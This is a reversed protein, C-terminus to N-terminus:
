LRPTLSVASRAIGDELPTLPMWGLETRAKASSYQQDRGLLFVAHRTLLPRGPLGLQQPIQSVRALAMAAPFTLSLWPAPLQLMEALGRTYARWTTGDASSLIYAQGLARESVAAMLMARCIDDVYVFGGRARGRDVLLMLRQRLLAVIDTVFAKGGPGYISAPRVITAPVERARIARQVLQDGLLKTRNYPLGVDQLPMSEDGAQRPYGYVDTSSVHVFRELRPAHQQALRLMSATLTINAHQYDALPAWDTSCGACHFVHSISALGTILDPSRVLPEAAAGPADLDARLIQLGPREELKSGPRALVTVVAGAELLM